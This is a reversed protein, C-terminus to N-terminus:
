AVLTGPMQAMPSTTAPGISACLASSSPTATASIQRAPRGRLSPRMRGDNVGIRLDRGDAFDSSSQLGGAQGVVDSLEGEGGVAAGLDVQGRITEHLDDRVCLGVPDEAHLSRAPAPLMIASTWAISNPAAGLVEAAGAMGVRCHALRDLFRGHRDCFARNMHLQLLSM